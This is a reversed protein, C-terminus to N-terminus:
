LALAVRIEAATMGSNWVPNGPDFRASTAMNGVVVSDFGIERILRAAVELAEAHDSALPIGVREGERHAQAALVQWNVTNLAKVVKVGYLRKQTWTGSGTGAKTVDRAASGDRHEFPNGADIVVKGMMADKVAMDLDETGGFPIALLLMDAWTAAQIMPGCQGGINRAREGLQEPHRSSLLVEHGADAILRGVTGGINGAGIIGIRL